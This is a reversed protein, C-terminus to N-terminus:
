WRTPTSNTPLTRKEIFCLMRPRWRPAHLFLPRAEEEEAEEAEEEEAEEEAEEVEEV